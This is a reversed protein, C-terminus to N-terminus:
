RVFESGVEAMCASPSLDGASRTGDNGHKGSHVIGSPISYCDEELELLGEM